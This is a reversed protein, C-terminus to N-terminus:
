SVYILHAIENCESDTVCHQCTIYDISKVIGIHPRGYKVTQYRLM